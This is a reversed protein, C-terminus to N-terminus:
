GVFCDEATDHRSCTLKWHSLCPKTLDPSWHAQTSIPIYLLYVPKGIAPIILWGNTQWSSSDPLNTYLTM